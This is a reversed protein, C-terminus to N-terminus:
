FTIYVHEYANQYRNQNQHVSKLKKPNKDNRVSYKEGSETVQKM